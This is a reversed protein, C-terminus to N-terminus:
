RRQVQSDVVAQIAGNLVVVIVLMFISFVVVAFATYIWRRNMKSPYPVLQLTYSMLVAGIAVAVTGGIIELIRSQTIRAAYLFVGAVAVNRIIDLVGKAFDRLWALRILVGEKTDDGWNAM